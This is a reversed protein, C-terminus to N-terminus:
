FTLNVGFNYIASLPYVNNDINRNGPGGGSVEPSFGTYKTFIVPDQANIYVRLKEIGLKKFGTAHITYGLQANRIKFYSGNEVYWSNIYYNQGGGLNVSPDTNSTGQGHWRNDFFNQTFNENGYRLGKNANYISVGSVGSFDLALDFNKYSFSTNIGYFFKPNPNGLVERDNGSISGIGKNSLKAYKFDGPQATPQYLNGDADKYAQVESISQFIGIVKYGYFVGIPEGLTTVTGLQGGTSAAGGSYAKQNGGPTNQTFRNQNYSINGGISYNFDRSVKDNWNLSLEFGNNKLKGINKILETQSTGDSGLLQLGFLFNVTSKVYYDATASLKNNFFAADLGIDSGESKEWNLPAPILSAVSQGASITGSNGYIFNLGASTAQQIGTNSPIGDNGIVGWSGRIKLINFVKQNSMFDENSVIWAAGISPFLARGNNSTFVSSADSRLTGTLTYRDKYSYTARSFYSSRRILSPLDSSTTTQGLSLYWTQPNTSLGGDVATGTLGYTSLRQAEQGLLITLNHDGFRNTYSLTNDVIWDKATNNSVSLTNHTSVQNANARYIPAFNKGDNEDYNGGISSRWTLHRLFKVNLYANGAAYYDRTTSNNYDLTVQPNSVSSGLGYYGPDGYAGDAFRVPIVPPATYLQRWIGGPPNKANSYKGMINYGFSINKTINIDQAFSLTYREYNNTKLIGQQNLYGLSLNFNNKEGGGNVSINHNTIIGNRLTQDFWNTGTGFQSSDLFNNGGSTRTLENFLIAYDHANVMKPLNNAVQYGVYGNYNVHTNGNKVGKKTTILVVGNAGRVGYIAESSADKLISITEIDASNLFSIDDLWVGNVVYLPKPNGAYTGLGRITIDPSSGPSGSNTIQVGAVKGQLGSLPSVSAQKAIEDGKIVAVSGTVDLKRQTGYGVVIVDGLTAAAVTHMLITLSSNEGVTVFKTVYNISSVILTQGQSVQLSFQGLSDAITGRNSGVISISANGIPANTSSDIVRGSINLQQGISILPAFFILLFLLRARRM